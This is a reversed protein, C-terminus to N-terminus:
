SNAGPKLFVPVPPSPLPAPTDAVSHRPLKPVGLEDCLLETSLRASEFIVPLGSGPHTGGGVLYVGDLDEYRNHPRFSLMQLLNHELNFVAGRYIGHQHQWDAPTIQREFRIRREVDEIGIKRLQSLVLQRFRPAERSWDVHPSEHPVPVLVYLTSHGPPALTPDTVCANQVYVSPDASLVRHESIEKLNREYDRAVYITHHRVQDELGEIGLYLMYTSCSYRARELKRANWRRRLHNPVLTRMTNAFDSNVVLARAPYRGRGTRVAVARRGEFEIEEVPEDLHLRVGLSQALSAMQEMVAACGGLPHYVGHEYEMFSLISYLSPCRWPSMGLYKAQFSFAIALRPDRFHSQMESAVTHWPRIYPLAGLAERSLLDTNSLFPRELVPRFRAFKARNDALFRQFGGRDQPSLAAVQEEMLDVDATCDLQGGAGFELRYQPDIRVMPVERRLDRGVAAYIEALVRPYMFFTPGTDFRFGEAEIASTRGGVRPGRELLRVSLGAGALLLAAALGGPGAGVVVVEESRAMSPESLRHLRRRPIM